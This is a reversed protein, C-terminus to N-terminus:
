YGLFKPAPTTGGILRTPPSYNRATGGGPLLHVPCLANLLLSLINLTGASMYQYPPRWDVPVLLGKTWSVFGHHDKGASMGRGGCGDSSGGGVRGGAVSLEKGKRCCMSAEPKQKSSREGQSGKKVQSAEVRGEPTWWYQELFGDHM